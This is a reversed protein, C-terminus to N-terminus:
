APAGLRRTRVRVTAMPSPTGAAPRTNSRRAGEKWLAMATAVRPAAQAPRPGLAPHSAFMRSTAGLWAPNIAPKVVMTDAIGAMMAALAVDVCSCISSRSPWSPPHIIVTAPLMKSMAAATMKLRPHPSSAMRRHVTPRSLNKGATNNM